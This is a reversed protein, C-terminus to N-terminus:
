WHHFILVRQKSFYEGERKFSPYVPDKLSFIIIALIQFVFGLLYFWKFEGNFLFIDFIMSYVSATLNGINMLTAGARNIFYPIFNYLVFNVLAFGLYFLVCPLVDGKEMNSIQDLEGIIWAEVIAFFFGAPALFALIDHVKYEKILLWEQYVNTSALIFVGLICFIDGLIIHKTSKDSDSTSELIDCVVIASVALISLIWSLYHIWNYKVRLFLLSLLVASPVTFVMLIMVSTITTYSYANVILINAHWDLFGLVSILFIDKWSLSQGVKFYKILWIMLFLYLVALQFM